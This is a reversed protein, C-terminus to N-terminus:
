KTLILNTELTKVKDKISQKLKCNLGNKDLLQRIKQSKDM